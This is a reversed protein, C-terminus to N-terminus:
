YQIPFADTPTTVRIIESCEMEQEANVLDLLALQECAVANLREDIIALRKLLAQRETIRRAKEMELTTLKLYLEHRKQTPLARRTTHTRLIQLGRRDLRRSM